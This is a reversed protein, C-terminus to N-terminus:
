APLALPIQSGFGPTPAGLLTSLNAAVWAIAAPGLVVILYWRVGAHWGLVPDLLRRVGGRGGWFAMLTLAALAPGILGLPFLTLSLSPSFASVLAAPIWFAWSITFVLAFFAAAQKRTASM